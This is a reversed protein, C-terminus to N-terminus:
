ACWIWLAADLGLRRSLLKEFVAVARKESVGLGGDPMRIGMEVKGRGKGEHVGGGVGVDSREGAGERVAVRVSKLHHRKPGM